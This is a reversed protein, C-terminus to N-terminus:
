EQLCEGQRQARPQLSLFLNRDRERRLAARDEPIPAASAMAWMAEQRAREAGGVSREAIPPGFDRALKEQLSHILKVITYFSSEARAYM